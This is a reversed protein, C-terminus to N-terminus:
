RGSIQISPDTALAGAVTSRGTSLLERQTYIRVNYASDTGISKLKVKQPIRSGTVIVYREEENQDLIRSHGRRSSRPEAQALSALLGAVSVSWLATKAFTSMKM